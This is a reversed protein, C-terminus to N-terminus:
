TPRTPSGSSSQLWCTMRSSSPRGAEAQTTYGALGAGGGGRYGVPPAGPAVDACRRWGKALPAAPCIGFLCVHPKLKLSAMNIAAHQQDSDSEQATRSDGSGLRVKAGSSWSDSAWGMKVFSVHVVVFLFSAFCRLAVFFFFGSKVALSLRAWSGFIVDPM